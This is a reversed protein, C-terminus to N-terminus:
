PQAGGLLSHLFVDVVPGDASFCNRLTDNPGSNDLFFRAKLRVDEITLCPYVIIAHEAAEYADWEPGDPDANRDYAAKAAAFANILEHLDAM